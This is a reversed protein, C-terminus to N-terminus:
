SAQTPQLDVQHAASRRSRRPLTADFSAALLAVAVLAITAGPASAAHFALTLGVLCATVGFAAAVASMTTVTHTWLRAAAAPIILLAVAM